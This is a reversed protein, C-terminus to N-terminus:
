KGTGTLSVTQPSGGGGDAVSVSATRTGTVTPKFTVSITCSAGAAVSTGCTNTESFDLPDAGTILLSKIPLAFKANNTFTATQPSSSTGVPVTGFNM